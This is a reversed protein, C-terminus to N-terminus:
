RLRRYQNGQERFEVSVAKDKAIIKELAEKASQFLIYYRNFFEKTVTEVSFSESIQEITPNANTEQLFSWSVAKLRTAARM